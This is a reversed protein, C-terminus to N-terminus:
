LYNKVLDVDFKYTIKTLALRDGDILKPKINLKKALLIHDNNAEGRQKHNLKTYMQIFLQFSMACPNHTEIFRNRSPSELLYGNKDCVGICFTLPLKFAVFHTIKATELLKRIHTDKILPRNADHIVIYNLKKFNTKIYKYANDISFNREEGGPILHVKKFSYKNIINKADELYKPHMVLIIYGFEPMKEFTSLSYYLLPKENIEFFQKPMPAGFRTGTGSAPIIVLNSM